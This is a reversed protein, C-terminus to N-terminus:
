SVTPVGRLKELLKMQEQEAAAPQADAPVRRRHRAGGGERRRHRGGGHVAHPHLHAKRKFLRDFRGVAEGLVDAM